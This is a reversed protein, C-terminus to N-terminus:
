PQYTSMDMPIHRLGPVVLQNESLLEEVTFEMNNPLDPVKDHVYRSKSPEPTGFMYRHLQPDIDQVGATWM